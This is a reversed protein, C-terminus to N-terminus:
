GTKIAKQWLYARFLAKVTEVVLFPALSLAMVVSAEKVGLAVTGFADQLAPLYVSLVLLVMSIFVGAFLYLNLGSQWAAKRPSRLAFVLALESVAITAYAMTQAVGGGYARGVLFAGLAAAGVIMGALGLAAWSRHKFLHTGREPPRQMVDPAAPDRALAVAPLGDTLLNITLIQVVTMPAGLGALVAVVFLIVEGFNASLLFAVFKRVNDGISRGERIAATITSFDDDTLVLDSAERAAETGSRGMAVGIDARRLAPADNIGDGTVAVVEGADQLREVLRLKDAPTVRASVMSVPIQLEHAIAEATAPHDGTLIEVRLGADRAASVADRATARLPDRLGILGVPVLESEAEEDSLQPGAEIQREAVALVRLGDAAWSLTLDNLRSREATDIKCRGLVVEPAGKVCIRVTSNEDFLVAMRKREPDFPIERIVAHGARLLTPSIGRESAAILFAGEIPDGVAKLEGDEEILEATSALVATQLLSKQDYGGIPELAQVRLRNETLTGTKDSAVVTASGLTEVAQLRRAIAGRSAMRSASSALAITVTAALGEPLAAIAVSVGLLFADELAAGQLLRIGALATTIVVGTVVMARTLNSLRRQLPTPPPKATEVLRAVRGIEAQSGTATVIARGQGRTVSTGAFVCSSREALPTDIPLPDTSKDDPISEGTLSSEDVALGEATVLRGDAPVPEGERLVALDGPVVTEIAIERERRDRLVSARREITKRLAHIAREAGAEQTFGLIGNLIVIVSIAAAELNDGIALSVTAAVILLAVLPDALQRIAIAMYAPGAGMELANPGYHALRKKAESESLGRQLDVGLRTAVDAATLAHSGEAPNKVLTGFM